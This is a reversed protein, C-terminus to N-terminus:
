LSDKNRLIPYPLGKGSFAARLCPEPTRIQLERQKHLVQQGEEKYGGGVAIEM